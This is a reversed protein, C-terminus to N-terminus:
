NFEQISNQHDAIVVSIINLFTKRKQHWYFVLIVTRQMQCVIGQIESFINQAHLGHL